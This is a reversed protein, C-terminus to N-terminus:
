NRIVVALGLAGDPHLEVVGDQPLEPSRFAWVEVRIAQRTGKVAARAEQLQNDRVFRNWGSGCLQYHVSSLYLYKLKMDDYRHGHRDFAAVQMGYDLRGRETEEATLKDVLATRLMLLRAQNPCVDSRGLSKRCVLRPATAHLVALTDRLAALAPDAVDFLGGAAADM